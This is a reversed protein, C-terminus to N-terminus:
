PAPTKDAGFRQRAIEAGAKLGTPAASGPQGQGFDPGRPPAAYPLVQSTPPVPQPQQGTAAPAPAAPAPAQPAVSNVLAYVKDTDVAGQANLFKSRDLGTLLASVTEEPLRNHAAARLWQEVLQAGTEALATARGQRLAEAVAREQQTQSATVLQQYQEAQTKLQDYDGMDRVRQEHRRAQHQWYAIQEDPRMDRWPTNAPFGAPDSGTAPQQGPQGPGGSAPPQQPAPPAPPPATFQPAPQQPPAQYTPAPPAVFQPQQPGPAPAPPAVFQPMATSQTPQPQAPHETTPAPPAAYQPQPAPQQPAPQPHTVTVGMAPQHIAGM